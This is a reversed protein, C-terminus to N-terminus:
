SRLGNKIVVSDSDTGTARNDAVTLVAIDDPLESVGDLGLSSFLSDIGQTNNSVVELLLAEKDSLTEGPMVELIGDSFVTVKFGPTVPMTYVSFSAEPFLGVAMGKGDLYVASGEVSYIPMPFHGGVSYTLTASREDLIGVFVTVHKGLDSTLLEQNVRDLFMKPCSIEDSSGRKFNRKLRMTLNKLLVTIFASSAGHGSVDAFYFLSRHDDLNFYDLFDGSLYLSPKVQHDFGFGNVNKKAKPLMKQQIQLGAKQDARLEQIGASLKIYGDELEEQLQKNHKALRIKELIRDIVHDVSAYDSVPKLIFDVAGARLCAVVDGSNPTQSVIVLPVSIQDNKKILLAPIEENNVDAFILDAQKENLYGQAQDITSATQVFYGKASLYDSLRLLDEKQPDIVLIREALNQM